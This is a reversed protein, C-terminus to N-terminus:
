GPTEASQSPMPEILEAIVSNEAVPVKVFDPSAFNM